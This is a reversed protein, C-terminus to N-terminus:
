LLYNLWMLVHRQYEIVNVRRIHNQQISDEVCKVYEKWLSTINGDMSLVSLPPGPPKSLKENVSEHLNWIWEAYQSSSPPSLIHKKLHSSM